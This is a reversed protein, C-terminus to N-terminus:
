KLSFALINANAKVSTSSERSGLSSSRSHGEKEFVDPSPRKASSISIEFRLTIDCRRASFTLFSFRLGATAWM